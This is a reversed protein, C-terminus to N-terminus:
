RWCGTILTAQSFEVGRRALWFGCSIASLVFFMFFGALILQGSQFYHTPWNVPMTLFHSREPVQMFKVPLFTCVYTTEFARFLSDKVLYVFENRASKYRQNHEDSLAQEKEIWYNGKDSNKQVSFTMEFSATSSVKLNVSVWTGKLM